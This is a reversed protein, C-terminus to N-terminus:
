SYIWKKILLLGNQDWDSSIRLKIFQNFLADIGEFIMNYLYARELLSGELDQKSEMPETYPPKLTVINLNDGKITFRWEQDGSECVLNLEVVLAGKKLALIGEELDADDGKIIITEVADRRGNELVIRNGIKMSIPASEKIKTQNNDIIFWLWTLFEHGLFKYRNYSVSIDLM